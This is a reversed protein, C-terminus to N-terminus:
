FYRFHGARCIPPNVQGDTQCHLVSLREPGVIIRTFRLNLVIVSRGFFYNFEYLKVTKKAFTAKSM